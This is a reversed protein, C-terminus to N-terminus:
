IPVARKENVQAKLNLNLNLPPSPILRPITRHSAGYIYGVTPQSLCPIGALLLLLFVRFDYKM